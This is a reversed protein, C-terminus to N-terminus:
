PIRAEHVSIFCPRISRRRLATIASSSGQCKAHVRRSVFTLSNQTDATFYVSPSGSSSRGEETPRSLLECTASEDTNDSGRDYVTCAVSTHTLGPKLPEGGVFRRVKNKRIM